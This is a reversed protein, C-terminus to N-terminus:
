KAPESAQGAAPQPLEELRVELVPGNPAVTLQQHDDRLSPSTNLELLDEKPDFVLLMRYGDRLLSRVRRATEDLYVEAYLPAIPGRQPIHLRYNAYADLSSFLVLQDRKAQGLAKALFDIQQEIPNPELFLRRAWHARIRDFPGKVTQGSAVTAMLVFSTALTRSWRATVGAFRLRDLGVFLVLLWIGSINLLNHDHSRGFFYGLQAVAFALLFASVRRREPDPDSVIPFLAALLVWLVGWFMSTFEIPLFGLHLSQYLMGAPNTLSRFTALQFALAGLPPVLLALRRVELRRQARWEGVLSAGLALGYFALYLLGFINDAVYSLAFAVSTALSTFGFRRLVLALPVWLDLRLTSVQPFCTPGALIALFRVVVLAVLFLLVLLRDDLLKTALRHYALLWLAFLVSLVAQMQHIRLGFAMMLQFAWTLLMNYQMYFSGLKEGTSLKLAPGIVFGYDFVSVGQASMVVGAAVVLWVLALGLRALWPRGRTLWLGLAGLGVVASTLGLVWLNERLTGFPVFNTSRTHDIIVVSPLLSLVQLPRSETWRVRPLYSVALYGLLLVLTVAVLMVFSEIGDNQSLWHRLWRNISAPDVRTSVSHILDAFAVFLGYLGVFLVSVISTAKLLPTQM